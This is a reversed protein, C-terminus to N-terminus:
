AANGNEEIPIVTEALDLQLAACVAIATDKQIEKENEANSITMVSIGSAVSLDTQNWAKRNRANL